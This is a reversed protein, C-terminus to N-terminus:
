IKVTIVLLNLFVKLFSIQPNGVFFEAEDGLFKLQILGGGM